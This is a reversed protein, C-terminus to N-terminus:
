DAAYSLEKRNVVVIAVCLGLAITSAATVLDTWAPAGHGTVWAFDLAPQLTREGEALAAAAFTWGRMMAISKGLQMSLTAIAFLAVDGLGGVLSSLAIMVAAATFAATVDTLAYSFLEPAAPAMGRAALLLAVLLLQALALAAGGAGAAFWRSAVYVPRPLPRAFTLQLVGSSVDQGIAGAALVLAFFYALGHVVGLSGTLVAIGVAPFFASFLFLLRMPSALRQRWLALVIERNV